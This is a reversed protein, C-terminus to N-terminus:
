AAAKPKKYAYVLVGIGIIIFGVGFLMWAYSQNLAANALVLVANAETVAAEATANSSRIDAEQQMIYLRDRANDHATEAVMAQDFNGLGAQYHTKAGAFDGYQYSMDRGINLETQAKSWYLQAEYSSFSPAYSIKANLEIYLENADAQDPSYVAFYYDTYPHSPYYTWTDVITKPEVSANVHEVFLKWTHPYMNSADATDPVTFDVTFAQTQFSGVQLPPDYIVSFNQNWDMWVHVASVNVMRYDPWEFYDNFLRFVAKATSGERYANVYTGYYSDSGRFVSDVWYVPSQIEAEASGATVTLILTIVLLGGTLMSMKRM